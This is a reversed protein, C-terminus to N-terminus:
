VTQKLKITANLSENETTSYMHGSKKWACITEHFMSIVCVFM